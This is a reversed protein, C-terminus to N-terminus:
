VTKRRRLLSERVVQMYSKGLENRSRDSLSGPHIRRLALIQPMMITEHGGERFRALWDVMDGAMGSPDIVPGTAIAAKTRVMMTTRLWGDYADSHDAADPAGRFNAIRTFVAAAEGHQELYSIQREAKQPLWLDDADLTAVLPTGVMAFGRTTASGPGANAQSVAAVLGGFSRAIELTSDTSGDDIVIIRAPLVSQALVSRIAESLTAAANYAPIVVTYGTLVM